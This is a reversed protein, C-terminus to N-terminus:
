CDKDIRGIIYQNHARTQPDALLEQTTMWRYDRGDISFDVEALGPVSGTYFYYEYAREEGHATAFKREAGTGVFQLQIDAAPTNLDRSLTERISTENEYERTTCNPFLLYDWEPDYYALYKRPNSPHRIAIISSRREKMDLAEIDRCLMDKTYDRTASHLAQRFAVAINCLAAICFTTRVVINWTGSSGVNTTYASYLLLFADLTGILSHDKTGIYSRKRELLLELETSDIYLQM